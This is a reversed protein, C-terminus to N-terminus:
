FHAEACQSPRSLQETSLIRSASEIARGLLVGWGPESGCAQVLAESWKLVYEALPARSDVAAHRLNVGVAVQLTYQAASLLLAQLSEVSRHVCM